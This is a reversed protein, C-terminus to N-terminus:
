GFTKGNEDVYVDGGVQKIIAKAKPIEDLKPVKFLNGCKRCTLRRDEACGDLKWTYNCQPCKAIIQM